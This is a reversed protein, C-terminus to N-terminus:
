RRMSAGKARRTIERIRQKLRELPKPAIARRFTDSMSLSRMISRTSCPLGMMRAPRFVTAGDEETHENFAIGAPARALLIALKAKREVLPLPRLDAGNFELLDFAHLMADKAKHRRHLADFVAVGDAGAVVADSDITFSRARLKAAAAAIAPYRDTWDHGRRTFLRVTTGDRRVILRYGDHKIRTCGAPGPLRSPPLPPSVLSSSAMQAPALPWPALTSGALTRHFRCTARSPCGSGSRLRCGHKALRRSHGQGAMPEADCCEPIIHAIRTRRGCRVQQQIVEDATALLTEPVKIGLATKSCATKCKINGM